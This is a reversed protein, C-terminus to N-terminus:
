YITQWLRSGAGEVCAHYTQDISKTRLICEPWQQRFQHKDRPLSVRLISSPGKFSPSRTLMTAATDCQERIASLSTGFITAATYTMSPLFQASYCCLRLLLVAFELDELTRCPQSWWQNYRELFTTPYIMEYIWNAEKLFHQILIDAVSREPVKKLLAVVDPTILVRPSPNSNIDM